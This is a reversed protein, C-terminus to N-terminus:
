TPSLITIVRVKGKESNFITKLESSENLDMLRVGLPQTAWASIAILM